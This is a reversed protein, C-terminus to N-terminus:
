FQKFYIQSYPSNTTCMFNLFYLFLITDAKRLSNVNLEIFTVTGLFIFTLNLKKIKM